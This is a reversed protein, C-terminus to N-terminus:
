RRRDVCVAAGAPSGEDSESSSSLSPSPGPPEPEQQLLQSLLLAGRGLITAEAADATASDGEGSAPGTSNDDAVRMERISRPVRGCLGM